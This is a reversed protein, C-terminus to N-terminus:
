CRHKYGNGEDDCSGNRKIGVSVHLVSSLRRLCRRGDWEDAMDYAEGPAFEFVIYLQPLARHRNEVGNPDM